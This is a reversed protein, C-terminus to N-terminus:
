KLRIKNGKKLGYRETFGAKVEVVYKAPFESSYLQDSMPTTNQAINVIRLDEAVFIIDLSTPTNRMWFTRPEVDQFVFLMGNKFDSLGRDMLGKERSGPTEAIEINISTIVSGDPQLFSLKGDQRISIKCGILFISVWILLTFKTISKM